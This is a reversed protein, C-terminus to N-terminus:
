LPGLIGRGSREGEKVELYRLLYPNYRLETPYFSRYRDSSFRLSKCLVFLMTGGILRPGATPDAQYFIVWLLYM